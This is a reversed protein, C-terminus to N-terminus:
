VAPLSPLTSGVWGQGRADKCGERRRPSGRGVVEGGEERGRRLRLRWERGSRAGQCSIGEEWGEQLLPHRVRCRRRRKEDLFSLCAFALERRLLGGTGERM